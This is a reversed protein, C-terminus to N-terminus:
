GVDSRLRGRTEEIDAADRQSSRQEKALRGKGSSGKRAVKPWQSDSRRRNEPTRRSPFHIRLLTFCRHRFGSDRPDIRGQLWAVRGMASARSRPLRVPHQVYITHVHCAEKRAFLFFAESSA